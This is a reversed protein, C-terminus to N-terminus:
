VQFVGGLVQVERAELYTKNVKFSVTVMQTTGAKAETSTQSETNGLEHMKM